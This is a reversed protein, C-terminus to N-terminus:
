RTHPFPLILNHQKGFSVPGYYVAGCIIERTAYKVLAM